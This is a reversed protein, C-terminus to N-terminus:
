RSTPGALGSLFVQLAENSVYSDVDHFTLGFQAAVTGDLLYAPGDLRLYGSKKLGELLTAAMSDTGTVFKQIQDRDGSLMGQPSHVTRRFFRLLRRFAYFEASREASASDIPREARWPYLPGDVERAYIRLSNGYVRVDQSYPTMVLDGDLTVAGTIRLEKSDCTMSRARVSVNPGIRASETSSSLDVDGDFDLSMHESRRPLALAGIGRLDYTRVSFVPSEKETTVDYRSAEFFGERDQSIIRFRVYSDADNQSAFSSILIDVIDLPLPDTTETSLSVVFPALAPSALAFDARLETLTPTRAEPQADENETLVSARAFDRLVSSVFRFRRKPDSADFFIFPHNRIQTQVAEEYESRLATPLTRPLPLRPVDSEVLAVLRQCQERPSYVTDIAAQSAFMPKKSEDLWGDHLRRQERLLLSRTLESLIKWEPAEGASPAFSEAPLVDRFDPVGLFAVVSELVPSYGLFRRVERDQWPDASQTKIGRAVRAFLDDRVREFVARHRRHPLEIRGQASYLVDLKRDLFACSRAEDFYDISYKEFLVNEGNFAQEIWDASDLRALLVVNQAGSSTRLFRALGIIFQFFSQEGSSLQTEDLSDIVLSAAGARLNKRYELAGDDGLAESLIGLFSGDGVRKGALDLFLANSANALARACTSKGVAAAAVIVAAPATENSTVKRLDPAVFDDRPKEIYSAGQHPDIVELSNARPLRNAFDIVDM